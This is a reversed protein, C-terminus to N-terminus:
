CNSERVRLSSSRRFNILTDLEVGEVALGVKEISFNVNLTAALREIVETLPQDQFDFDIRRELAAAIAAETNGQSTLEPEAAHRLRRLQQLLAAVERHVAQTQRVSFLVKDGGTLPLMEGGDGETRIWPGRSPDGTQFQIIDLLDSEDRVLEGTEERRIVLDSVDYVRTDLSNDAYSASTISLAGDEIVFALPLEDGLVLNLGSRVTVDRVHLTIPLDAEIGEAELDAQALQIEIGLVKAMDSLVDRLPTKTYDCTMRRDLLQEIAEREAEEASVAAAPPPPPPTEDAAFADPSLLPLLGLIIAPSRLCRASSGLNQLLRLM